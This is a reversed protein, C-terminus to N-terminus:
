PDAWMDVTEKYCASFSLTFAQSANLILARGAKNGCCTDFPNLHSKKIDLLWHEKIMHWKIFYLLVPGHAFCFVTLHNWREWFTNTNTQNKWLKAQEQLVTKCENTLHTEVLMYICSTSKEFSDPVKMQVVAYHHFYSQNGTVTLNWIEALQDRHQVFHITQRSPPFIGCLLRCRNYESAHLLM